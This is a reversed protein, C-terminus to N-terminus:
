DVGAESYSQVATNEIAWWLGDLYLDDHQNHKVTGDVFLPIPKGDNINLGDAIEYMIDCSVVHTNSSENDNRGRLYHLLLDDHYMNNVTLKKVGVYDDIKGDVLKVFFWEGQRRINQKPTKRIHAPMLSTYADEITFVPESLQCGFYQDEDVGMIIYKRMDGITLTLLVNPSRHWTNRGIFVFGPGPKKGKPGSKREEPHFEAVRCGKLATVIADKDPEGETGLFRALCRFSITLLSFGEADYEDAVIAPEGDDGNVLVLDDGALYAIPIMKTIDTIGKLPSHYLVNETLKRSGYRPEMVEEKFFGVPGYMNLEKLCIKPTLL